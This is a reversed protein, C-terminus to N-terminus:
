FIEVKVLVNLEIIHSGKLNGGYFWIYKIYNVVLM